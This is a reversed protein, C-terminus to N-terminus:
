FKDYGEWNAMRRKEYRSLEHDPVSAAAREKARKKRIEIKWAEAEEATMQKNVKNSNPKHGFAVIIELEHNMLCDGEGIMVQYNELKRRQIFAKYEDETM